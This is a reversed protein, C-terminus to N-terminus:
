SEELAIAKALMVMTLSKGSGQTHCIVGGARKGDAGARRIREMTKRVAFYQQYRAIKKKGADFVIFQRALEIVRETRLLRYIARDQETVPPGELELENFYRRAYAFRDAFLKDKQEKALPKNVLGAVVQRAVEQNIDQNIDENGGPQERWRA